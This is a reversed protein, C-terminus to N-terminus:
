DSHYREEKYDVKDAGDKYRGGEVEDGMDGAGVHENGNNFEEEVQM